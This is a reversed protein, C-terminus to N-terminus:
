RYELSAASNPHWNIDALKGIWHWSTFSYRALARAEKQQIGYPNTICAHARPLDSSVVGSLQPTQPGTGETNQMCPAPRMYVRLSETPIPSLRCVRAHWRCLAGEQFDHVVAVIIASVM